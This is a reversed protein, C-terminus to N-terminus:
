AVLLIESSLVVEDLLSRLLRWCCSVRRWDEEVMWGRWESGIWDMGDM